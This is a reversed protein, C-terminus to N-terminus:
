DADHRNARVRQQADQMRQGVIFLMLAARADKANVIHSDPAVLSALARQQNIELCMFGDIQEVDAGGFNEGLPQTLIRSDLDDHAIAGARRPAQWLM